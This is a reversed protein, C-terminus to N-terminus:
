QSCSQLSLPSWIIFTFSARAHLDMTFQHHHCSWLPPRSTGAHSLVNLHTIDVVPQLRKLQQLGVSILTPFICCLKLFPLDLPLCAPCPSYPLLRLRPSSKEQALTKTWSPSSAQFQVWLAPLMGGCFCPSSDSYLVLLSGNRTERRQYWCVMDKNM